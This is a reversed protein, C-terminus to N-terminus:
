EEHVTAYDVAIPGNSVHRSPGRVLLVGCGAASIVGGYALSYGVSRCGSGYSPHASKNENSRTLVNEM